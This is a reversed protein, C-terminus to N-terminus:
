TQPKARSTNYCAQNDTGVQSKPPPFVPTPAAYLDSPVVGDGLLQESAGNGLAYACNTGALQKPSLNAHACVACMM